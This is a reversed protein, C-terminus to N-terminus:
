VYGDSLLLLIYFASTEEGHKQLVLEAIYSLRWQAMDDIFTLLSVNLWKCPVSM